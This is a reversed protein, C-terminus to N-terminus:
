STLIKEVPFRSILLDRLTLIQQLLVDQPDSEFTGGNQCLLKVILENDALVKKYEKEKQLKIYHAKRVETSNGFIADLTKESYGCDVLDMICSARLNVFLKPWREIDNQELIDSLMTWSGWDTRYYDSFILDDPSGSFRNFVEKVERFL